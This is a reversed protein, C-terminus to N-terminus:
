SRPGEVVKRLAATGRTAFYGLVGGLVVAFATGSDLASALLAAGLFAVMVSIARIEHPQVAIHPAMAKALPRAVSDDLRPAAFGAALAILFGLM